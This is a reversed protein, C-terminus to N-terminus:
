LGRKYLIKNNLDLYSIIKNPSLRNLDSNEICIKHIIEKVNYSTTKHLHRIIRNLCVIGDLAGNFGSDWCNRFSTNLAHLINDKYLIL